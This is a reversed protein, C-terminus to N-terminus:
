LNRDRYNDETELESMIGYQDVAKMIMMVYAENLTEPAKVMVTMDPQQSVDLTLERMLANMDPMERGNYRVVYDPGVTIVADYHPEPPKAKAAHIGFTFCAGFILLCLYYPIRTM